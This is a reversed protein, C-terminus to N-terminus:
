EPTKTSQRGFVANWAKRLSRGTARTAKALSSSTHDNATDLAAGTHRAGIEAGGLVADSGQITGRISSNGRLTIVSEGSTADLRAIMEPAFDSDMKNPLMWAPSAVWVSGNSPSKLEGLNVILGSKPLEVADECSDAGCGHGCMTKRLYLAHKGASSWVRPGHEQADIAEARAGSSIDCATNEHAGAYWYLAKPDGPGNAVIVSVHEADLLHQVRGCDKEWLTYYHIEIDSSGPVPFVQGYITGDDSVPTPTPVGSEFRAPRVACDTASIMFTPRFQELLAQEVRDSLGDHDSDLPTDSQAVAAGLLLVTLAVCSILARTSRGFNTGLQM